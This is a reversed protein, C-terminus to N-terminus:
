FSFVNRVVMYVVLVVFVVPPLWVHFALRPQVVLFSVFVIGFPLLPNFRFARVFDGHLYYHLARLTGCGPCSIGLLSLPCRPYFRASEPNCSFLVAAVILATATTIYVMLPNVRM